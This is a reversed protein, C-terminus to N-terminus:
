TFKSSGPITFVKGEREKGSTSDNQFVEEDLEEGLIKCETPNGYRQAISIQIFRSIGSL